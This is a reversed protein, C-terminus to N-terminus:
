DKDCTYWGGDHDVQKSNPHEKMYKENARNILVNDFKNLLNYFDDYTDDYCSNRKVRVREREFNLEEDSADRFFDDSYKYNEKDTGDSASKRIITAVSLLGSIIGVVIKIKKKHKKCFDKVKNEFVEMKEKM